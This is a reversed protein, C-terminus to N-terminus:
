VEWSCSPVVNFVDWRTAVFRWLGSQLRYSRSCPKSSARRGDVERGAKFFILLDKFLDGYCVFTEPESLNIFECLYIRISLCSIWEGDCLVRTSVFSLIKQEGLHKKKLFSTDHLPFLPCSLPLLRMVYSIERDPLLSKFTLVFVFHFIRLTAFPVVVYESRRHVFLSFLLVLLKKNQSYPSTSSQIAPQSTM